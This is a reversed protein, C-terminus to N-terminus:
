GAQGSLGSPSSPARAAGARRRLPSPPGRERGGPGAAAGRGRLRGRGPRPPLVGGSGAAPQDPVDLALQRLQHDPRRGAPRDGPRDARALGRLLDALPHGAQGRAVAATFLAIATLFIVRNGYRRTLWGSLPILVALTLLYATVVPGVETAPAHLSRGIQPSATTVITGDLIEMFYCGAVLLAIRRHRASIV